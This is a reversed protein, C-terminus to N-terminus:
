MVEIDAQLAGAAKITQLISIMDRPTVGLANLGAVLSSLSAGDKLVILHRGKEEEVSVQSQPVTTTQGQSFPQPQSVRPTEQVSITLNGQAIAITSIRVEDGLKHAQIRAGDMKWEFAAAGGIERLAEGVDAATQALMPSVPSFLELQFRELSDAGQYLAATAVAGLGKSYMAARRVQAAPLGAAAAIADQMIGALAGQRLEGLLLRLLFKQEDPTARAFLDRLAEARRGAAGAGRIAALGALSRDVDALTLTDSVAGPHAGAAKLAAYGIGIRGQPIDGSLYHM